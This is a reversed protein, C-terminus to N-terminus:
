RREIRRLGQEPTWWSIVLHDAPTGVRTFVVERLDVRFADAAEDGEGVSGDDIAVGALKAEGAWASPDEDPPDVSHSHIALRPDARLDAARRSGLMMGLRLEGDALDVETGSIRPSGDRRITAMTHHKHSTFLASVEAALAPEAAAFENWAAM